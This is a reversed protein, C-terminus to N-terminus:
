DDIPVRIWDSEAMFGSIRVEAVPRGLEGIPVRCGRQWTYQPDRSSNRVMCAMSAPAPGAPEDMHATMILWEGDVQAGVLPTSRPAYRVDHADAFERVRAFFRARIPDIMMGADALTSLWLDRGRLGRDVGGPLSMLVRQPAEHGYVDIMASVMEEGIAYRASTGLVRALAGGDVVADDDLIDMRLWRALKPLPERHVERPAVAAAAHDALGEIFVAVGDATSAGLSLLHQMVHTAEHALVSRSLPGHSELVIAMGSATGHAGPLLGTADVHIRTGFGRGFRHELADADADIQDLFTSSPLVAASQLVLEYHRSSVRFPPSSAVFTWCAWLVLGAVSPYGLLRVPWRWSRLSWEPPRHSSRAAAVAAAVAVTVAAIGAWALIPLVAFRLTDALFRPQGVAFPSFHSWEPMAEVVREDAIVIVAGVIWGVQALPSLLLGLSLAAVDRVFGGAQIELLLALPLPATLSTGNWAVAGIGGAVALARAVAVVSFAAVVRARFVAGRAVPLADLFRTTGLRHDRDGVLSGMVLWFLWTTTTSTCVNGDSTRPAAGGLLVNQVFLAGCAVVVFAIWPGLNRVERAFLAWTAKM